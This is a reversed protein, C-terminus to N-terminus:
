PSVLHTTLYSVGPKTSPASNAPITIASARLPSFGGAEEVLGPSRSARQSVSQHWNM